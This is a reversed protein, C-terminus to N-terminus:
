FGLFPSSDGERPGGTNPATSTPLNLGRTTPWVIRASNRRRFGWGGGPSPFREARAGLGLDWAGFFSWVELEVSSPAIAAHSNPAQHKKPDQLKPNPAQPKSAALNRKRWAARERAYVRPQCPMKWGRFRIEPDRSAHRR